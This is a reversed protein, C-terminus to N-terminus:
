RRRSAYTGGGYPILATDGHRVRIREIPFAWFRQPSRPSSTEQGQGQLQELRQDVDVYGHADIKSGRARSRGSASPEVLAALGRGRRISGEIGPPLPEDWGLEPPSRAKMVLPFNGSDFITPRRVSETGVHWPMEEPRILTAGASSRRISGSSAALRDMIRERAFNAEFM